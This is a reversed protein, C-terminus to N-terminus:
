SVPGPPPLPLVRGSPILSNLTEYLLRLAQEATQAKIELRNGPWCYSWATQYTTTEKSGPRSAKVNLGIWTLGVPKEPTGGGPGAIGSVSLGIDAGMRHRVGQAMELVTERSVAGFMELTAPDVGLQEIKIRNAYAVVGGLFYDSSGSINTLRDAILGGTCSEAVALWLGCERLLDGVLKELSESSM